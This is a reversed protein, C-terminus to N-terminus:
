VRRDAMAPGNKIWCAEALLAALGFCALMSGSLMRLQVVQAHQFEAAGLERVVKGGRAVLVTRGDALRDPRASANLARCVLFNAFVFVLLGVVAGKMWRPIDGFIESTLNRRPVRRWQTVVGLWVLLLLPLLFLVSYYTRGAFTLAYVVASALASLTAIWFIFRLPAPVPRVQKAIVAAALASQPDTGFAWHRLRESAPRAPREVPRSDWHASSRSSIACTAM